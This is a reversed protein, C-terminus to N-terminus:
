RGRVLRPDYTFPQPPSIRLASFRPHAPSLLFNSELPVVASPVRLVVSAGARAWRDGTARSEALRPFSAKGSDPAPAASAIDRVEISMRFVVLPPVPAATDLHVLFELAALALSSSAYVVRVGRSNWRGGFRFSGEGDFASAAHVAKVLRWAVVPGVPSESM